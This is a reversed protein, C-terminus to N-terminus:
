KDVNDERIRKPLSVSIMVAAGGGLLANYLQPLLLAGTIPPPLTLTYTAAGAIVLFKAVAGAAVGILQGAKSPLCRYLLGILFTYVANGIMIFPIAPALPAPLIGLLLAAWPTLLGIIVGSAVGAWLTALALFFNVAPGTLFTPLRLGQLALTLALFLATRTLFNIKVRM